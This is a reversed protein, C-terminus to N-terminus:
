IGTDPSSVDANRVRGPSPGNSSTPSRRRSTTGTVDRSDLLIADTARGALDRDRTVVTRDQETALALVADDDEVGEDLTYVTDYGCMRLYTALKGLMTDLLLRDSTM